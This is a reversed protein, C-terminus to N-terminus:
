LLNTQSGAPSSRGYAGYVAQRIRDETDGAMVVAVSPGFARPKGLWELVKNRAGSAKRNKCGRWAGSLGPDNNFKDIIGNIISETSRTQEQIRDLVLSITRIADESPGWADGHYGPAQVQEFNPQGSDHVYPEFYKRKENQMLLSFLQINTEPLMLSDVRKGPVPDLAYLFRKVKEVGTESKFVAREQSNENLKLAMYGGRSCGLFVVKHGEHIDISDSWVTDMIAQMSKGTLGDSYKHWRGKLMDLPDTFYSGLVEKRGKSVDRVGPGNRVRPSRWGPYEKVLDVLLMPMMNTIKPDKSDKDQWTGLLVYLHILEKSNATVSTQSPGANSM